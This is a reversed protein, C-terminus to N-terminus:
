IKIYGVVNDFMNEICALISLSAPHNPNIICWDIFGSLLPKYNFASVGGNDNVYQRFTKNNVYCGYMIRYLQNESCDNLLSKLFGGYATNDERIAQKEEKTKKREIEDILEDSCEIYFKYHNLIENLAKGVVTKFDVDVDLDNYFDPDRVARSLSFASAKFGDEIMQLLKLRIYSIIDSTEKREQRYTPKSFAYGNEFIMTDIESATFQQKERSKFTSHTLYLEARRVNKVIEPRALDLSKYFDTWFDFSQYKSECCTVDHIIHYHCKSDEKDPSHLPSVVFPVGTKKFEDVCKEFNNDEFIIGAIHM